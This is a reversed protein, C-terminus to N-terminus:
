ALERLHADLEIAALRVDRALDEFPVEFAYAELITRLLAETTIERQFTRHQPVLERPPPADAALFEITPDVGVTAFVRRGVSNFFTGAVDLDQRAEVLLEYHDKMERWVGRDHVAGGLEARVVGVTEHVIGERLDLRERADLQAAAWDRAEFRARARATIRSRREIYSEFGARIAEAGARALATRETVM